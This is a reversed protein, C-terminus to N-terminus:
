VERQRGKFYDVLYQVTDNFTSSSLALGLLKLEKHLEKNITITTKKLAQKREMQNEKYKKM